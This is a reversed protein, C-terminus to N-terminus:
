SIERKPPHFNVVGASGVSGLFEIVKPDANLEALLSEDAENPELPRLSLLASGAQNVM